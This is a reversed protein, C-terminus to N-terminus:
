VRGIARRVLKVRRRQAIVELRDGRTVLGVIELDEAALQALSRDTRVQLRSRSGFAASVTLGLGFRNWNSVVSATEANRLPAESQRPAPTAPEFGTAGVASLM